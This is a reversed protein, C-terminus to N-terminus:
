SQNLLLKHMEKLFTLQEHDLSLPAKIQQLKSNWGTSIGIPISNNSGLVQEFIDRFKTSPHLLCSLKCSKALATSVSKANKLGDNLTLHLSHDFCSLQEKQSQSRIFNQVEEENDTDLSQWMEPENVEMDAYTDNKCNESSDSENGLCTLTNTFAKKM